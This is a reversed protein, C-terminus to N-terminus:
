AFVDKVNVRWQPVVDEASLEEDEGVVIIQDASRYAHIQHSAPDALLVLKTGASLWDFAKEEVASFTDNPSVVEVALDPAFPLFGTDDDITDFRLQAIYAVDPARVTDPNSSILFGTEAAFVVGLRLSDVHVALLKAIRAAVRGHRGGAPSMVRLEGRVLEYRGNSKSLAALQEATTIADTLHGSQSNM